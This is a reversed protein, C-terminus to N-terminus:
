ARHIIALLLFHSHQISSIHFYPFFWIYYFLLVSTPLASYLKLTTALNYLHPSQGYCNEARWLLLSVWFCVAIKSSPTSWNCCITPSLFYFSACFRLPIIWPLVKLHLTVQGHSTDYMCQCLPGGFRCDPFIVRTYRRLVRHASILRLRPIALINRPPDGREM